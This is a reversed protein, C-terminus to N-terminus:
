GNNEEQPNMMELRAEVTNRDQRKSGIKTTNEDPWPKPYPKPKKSNVAAHLDYTHTLVIWERSVPYDWDSEAAQLWSSPDRMLVAVLYIAELYTVGDGIQETSLNFRSRFDYAVEAPHAELIELLRLIGGCTRGPDM